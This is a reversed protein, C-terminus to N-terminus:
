PNRRAVTALCDQSCVDLARVPEGDDTLEVSELHWWGEFSVVDDLGQSRRVPAAAGVKGCADCIKGVM